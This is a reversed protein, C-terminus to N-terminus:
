PSLWVDDRPEKVSEIKLIKKINLYNNKLYKSVNKPNYINIKM